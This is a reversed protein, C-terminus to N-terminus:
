KAHLAMVTEDDVPDKWSPKEVLWLAPASNENLGHPNGGNAASASVLKKAVPMVAFVTFFGRVNILEKVTEFYADVAIKM